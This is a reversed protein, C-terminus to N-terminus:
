QRTWSSPLSPDGGQYVYGDQVDGVKPAGNAAADPQAGIGLLANHMEPTIISASDLENLKKRADGISMDGNQYATIVKSREVNVAAKAKMISLIMRNGDASNKLAPLSNLMGAYEVDSTAGSGPARLTPAIRKVISEFADGASNFGKFTEALPGVVPGQPAINILQDLVGFDQANSASVSGTSKYDAWQKGEAESLAKNLAGDPQDGTNVNVLPGSGITDVKGDPGIQAASTAPLGYQAKEEATMPRFGPKDPGDFFLEPKSNPDNSNYRYTNGQGDDLFSYKPKASEAAAAAAARAARADERAWTAQQDEKQWGRSQLANAVSQQGPTAWEDAMVGTYDGTKRAEALAAAVKDHGAKTAADAESEKYNAVGEGALAGLLSWTGQPVYGQKQRLGQAMRQRTAVQEPTLAEGGAGWQFPAAPKKTLAAAVEQVGM